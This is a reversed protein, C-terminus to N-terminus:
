FHAGFNEAFGQQTHDLQLDLANESFNLRALMNLRTSETEVVRVRKIAMARNKNAKPTLRM